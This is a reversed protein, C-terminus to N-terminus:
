QGLRRLLEAHDAAFRAAVTRAFEGEAHLLHRAAERLLAECTTEQADALDQLAHHERDTLRVVYEHQTM